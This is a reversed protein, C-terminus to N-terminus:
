KGKSQEIADAWDYQPFKAAIRATRAETLEAWPLVTIDQGIAPYSQLVQVAGERDFWAQNLDFDFLEVAQEPTFPDQQIGIFDVDQGVVRAKVCYGFRESTAYENLYKEGVEVDARRLRSEVQTPTSDFVIVDYDKPSLGHLTDRASGGAVVGEIGAADMIAYIAKVIDAPKM